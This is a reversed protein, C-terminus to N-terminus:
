LEDQYNRLLTELLTPSILKIKRKQDNLYREQIDGTVPIANTTPNITLGQANVYYVPNYERGQTEIYLPVNGVGADATAGEKGHAVLWADDHAPVPFYFYQTAVDLGIPDTPFNIDIVFSRDDDRIRIKVPATLYAPDFPVETSTIRIHFYVNGDDHTDWYWDSSVLLPNYIDAIHKVLVSEQLPFDSRYDIKENCLMVVWHYEPTGYFKEAIIEPTEGDIIDYEDYLTVNSLIERRLRVNRTIDKVISTKIRDGYNFDYLFQPFNKFYM